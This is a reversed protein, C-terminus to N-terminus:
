ITPFAIPNKNDDRRIDSYVYYVIIPYISEVTIKEVKRLIGTITKMFYFGSRGGENTEWAGLFDYTLDKILKFFLM